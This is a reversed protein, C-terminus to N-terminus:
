ISKFYCHRRVGLFDCNDVKANVHTQSRGLAFNVTNKLPVIKNTFVKFNGVQFIYTKTFLNVSFYPRKIVYFVVDTCHEKNLRLRAIIDKSWSFCFGNRLQVRM